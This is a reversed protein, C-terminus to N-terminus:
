TVCAGILAALERNRSHVAEGSLVKNVPTVGAVTGSYRAVQVHEEGGRIGSLGQAIRQKRRDFIRADHNRSLFQHEIRGVWEEHRIWSAGVQNLGFVEGDGARGHFERVSGVYLLPRRFVREFSEIM